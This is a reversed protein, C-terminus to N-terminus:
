LIQEMNDLEIKLEEAASGLTSLWELAESRFFNSVGKLKCSVNIWYLHVIVQDQATM